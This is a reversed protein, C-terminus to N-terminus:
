NKLLLPLLVPTALTCGTKKHLFCWFEGQYKGGKKAGLHLARKLAKRWRKIITAAMKWSSRKWCLKSKLEFQYKSLNLKSSIKKAGVLLDIEMLLRGEHWSCLYTLDQLLKKLRESANCCVRWNYDLARRVPNLKKFVSKESNELMNILKEGKLACNGRAAM